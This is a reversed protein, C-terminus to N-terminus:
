DDAKSSSLLRSSARLGMYMVFQAHERLAARLESLLTQVEPGQAVLLEDCLKRIRADIPDIEM